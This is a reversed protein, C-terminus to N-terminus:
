PDGRKRVLVRGRRSPLPSGPKRAIHQLANRAPSRGCLSTRGVIAGHFAAQTLGIRLPVGLEASSSKTVKPTSRRLLPAFLLAPGSPASPLIGATMGVLLKSWSTS